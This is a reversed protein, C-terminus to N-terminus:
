GAIRYAFTRTLTAANAHTVTFSGQAVASVYITGNGLETAANATKATIIVESDLGCNPATVTTTAQNPTCTFSGFCNARGEFLDRIGRVIRPLSTENPAPVNGSL